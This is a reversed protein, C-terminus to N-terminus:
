EALIGDCCLLGGEGVGISERRHCELGVETCNREAGGPNWGNAVIVRPVLVPTKMPHASDGCGEEGDIANEVGSISAQEIGDVSQWDRCAVSRLAMLSWRGSM